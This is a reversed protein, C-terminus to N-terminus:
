FFKPIFKMIEKIFYKSSFYTHSQTNNRKNPAEKLKQSM